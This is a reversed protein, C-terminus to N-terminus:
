HPVGRADEEIRAALERLSPNAFLDRVPVEVGFAGRIRAILRTAHLSNGGLGFLDGGVGVQEVGLLDAVTAALRRETETVPPLHPVEAAAPAGAPEAALSVRETDLALASGFSGAHEAHTLVLGPVPEGPAVQVAQGGTKWVALLATVLDAGPPLCLAVRDGSGVGARRLRNALRGAAADLQRHTWRIGDGDVLAVEGGGPHRALLDTDRLVRDREAATLIEIDGVRAGPAAVAEGLATLYHDIFRDIRDADFLDTSYEVSLPLTGDPSDSVDVSIDYLAYREPVVIPEISVEGLVLDAAGIDRPLLTLGIQFLPNRGAAREPRLADVVLNFPVDQHATANLITDHCRRVLEGFTPDGDLPTRLVLTNGFFGVLGEIDARTRGSFISGIPLDRQGTYRHLVVLLAAQLVALLSVRHERACARVAASLEDPTQRAITDGRGTPRDPRPRDAPFSVVPLDALTERWYGLRHELEAGRLRRRQWAAYDAPQVPLPELDAEGGAAYLASLEGGLVAASWGDAVIHHFVLVLAHEDPAIRALAYRFVPGQALDFPRACEDAAWREVHDAPLDIPELRVAPPPDIVQRPVGDQNLFRTRLAEHRTVLRQLARELAEVDLRGRIRLPFPIHYVTSAPDYQNMFWVAEQQFTCALAGDRPVPVPGANLAARKAREGALRRELEAIKEDLEDDPATDPGGSDLLARALGRVSPHTALMGVSAGDIRSVVRVAAFSDGGLGFFSATPDVDPVGLVERFVEAVKEELRAAEASLPEAPAESAVPALPAVADPGAAAVVVSLRDASAMAEFVAHLRALVDDVFGEDFRERHILVQLESVPQPAVTLTLPFSIKDYLADRRFAPRGPQGAGASGVALAANELVVLSEFLARGPTGAWTKIDALPTYEYRRMQAYRDQIDRLWAGVDGDDPVSVRVPLTNAFLGVMREVQPLEAPRGSSTSGFVVDSRGTYRRLVVAWAAQVLTGFTVRHRAAAERLGRGIREPLDVTRRSVEGTGRRPDWPRLPALRSPTVGALTRTWFDKTAEPDQRQLWAIYDRYPPPDPPTPGGGSRAMVETMVVAVSWGDLLLHHYTWTLSHRDEGLRVLHLRQLPAATLDFGAARDEAHLRELRERQQAADLHTWDHRHVPLTVDRHVVQLPKDLGEWHFSTRLSPHAMLVANWTRELAQYDLPGEVEYMHQSLYMDAAGDHTSHLLMGQQLPSLEYIDEVDGM